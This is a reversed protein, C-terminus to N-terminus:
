FSKMFPRRRSGADALVGLHRRLEDVAQRGITTVAATGTEAQQAGVRLPLGRDGHRQRM